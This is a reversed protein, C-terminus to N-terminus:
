YPTRRCRSSRVWRRNGPLVAIDDLHRWAAEGAAGAHAVLGGATHLRLLGGTRCGRGRTGAGDLVGPDHGSDRAAAGGTGAPDAQNGPRAPGDVRAVRGPIARCSATKGRSDLVVVFRWNEGGLGTPAQTAIDICDLLTAAEVPRDFDLRRRVSRATSLVADVSALDLEVPIEAQM